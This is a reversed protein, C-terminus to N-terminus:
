NTDIKWQYRDGNELIIRSQRSEFKASTITPGFKKLVADFDQLMRDNTIMQNEPKQNLRTQRGSPDTRTVFYRTDTIDM